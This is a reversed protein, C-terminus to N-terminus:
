FTLLPTDQGVLMRTLSIRQTLSDEDTVPSLLASNPSYYNAHALVEGALGQM